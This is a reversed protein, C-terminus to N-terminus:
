QRGAGEGDLVDPAPCGGLWLATELVRKPDLNELRLYHRATDLLAGLPMLGVLETEVVKAGLRGAEERVREVVEPLPTTPYDVLNMSVEVAGRSRTALGLAKVGALGGSSARVRRAVERAIALDPPELYCNFAILPRRAGVAAAGASPHPMPPGYDPPDEAMRRPLAEFGGRRVDALNRHASRTAAEEYLYVPLGLEDGLRKGVGRALAVAEDMAAGNLPVIPIVDVAGMRPHVGRHRRLDIREIAVRSVAILSALLSAPDGALTMVARNHDPDAELGLLMAGHGGAAKELARLTSADRGESLNPIAEFWM